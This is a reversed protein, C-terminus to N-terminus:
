ASGKETHIAVGLQHHPSLGQGWGLYASPLKMDTCSSTCPVRLPMAIPQPLPTHQVIWTSKRYQTLMHISIFLLANKCVCKDNLTIDGYQLQLIEYTTRVM